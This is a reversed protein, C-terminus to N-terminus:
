PWFLPKQNSRGITCDICRIDPTANFTIIAGFPSVEEPQTPSTGEAYKILSDPHNRIEIQFCGSRYNWDPVENSYIFKRRTQLQSIEVFGIVIEDPDTLCHINGSLQTPQADFLSGVQETNKKMKELFLYKEHSVAYQKLNVSYLIGLQESGGPIFNFPLYIIDSTLKESSGIVISTSNVTKWCKYITTDFYHNPYRYDVSTIIGTLSNRIYKLSSVFSSHFEWTEDYDWQYYRTSNQQDHSHVYLRLGSPERKWSISDIVPTYKISIYDSIYDKGDRTKNRLRYKVNNILNLQAISYAGPAGEILTFRDGNEGEVMVQAGRETRIAATDTLNTTRSLRITTSGPGSNLYGEVVLLKINKEKLEPTYEQKCNVFMLMMIIFGFGIKFHLKM